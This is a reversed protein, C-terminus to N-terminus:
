VLERSGAGPCRERRTRGVTGPRAAVEVVTMSPLNADIARPAEAIVAPLATEVSGDGAAQAVGISAILGAVLASAIGVVIGTRVPIRTSHM